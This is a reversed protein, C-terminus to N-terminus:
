LQIASANVENTLVQVINDQLIKDSLDKLHKKPDQKGVYRVDDEESEEKKAEEKDKSEVTEKKKIEEEVKKNYLKTLKTLNELDREHNCFAEKEELDEGKDLILGNTWQKMHLLMMVKMEETDKLYDINLSYYAKNLGHVLATLNPKNLFPINSTTQRPEGFKMMTAPDMLRFADIVVKGKVSQIPDVVVAVARPSLQEFTKQTSVDVSSLWCGFGPHSHYWGVVNEHRGTQELMEMMKTQFVDDVAEVSVGTGSQPMAFVDVVNVTYEDVFSGLMLGMVEMPVGARGHRLMKLLAIPSIYVTEKSDDLNADVPAGGSMGGKMSGMQSLLRNM